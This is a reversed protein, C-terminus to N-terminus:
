FFLFRHKPKAFIMGYSLGGEVVFREYRVWFLGEYSADLEASAHHALRIM